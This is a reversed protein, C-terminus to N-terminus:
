IKSVVQVSQLYKDPTRFVYILVSFFDVIYMLSYKAFEAFTHNYIPLKEHRKVRPRAYLYCM